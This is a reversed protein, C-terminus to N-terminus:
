CGEAVAVLRDLEPVTILRGQSRVGFSRYAAFARSITEQTTGLYGAILTRSVPLRIEAFGSRAATLSLLFSALRAQPKQSRMMNAAVMSQAFANVSALAASVLQPDAQIVARAREAPVALLVAKEVVSIGTVSATGSLLEALPLVAGHFHLASVVTASRGAVMQAVAGDEVLFLRDPSVGPRLLMTGAPVPQQRCATEALAAYLRARAEAGVITLLM